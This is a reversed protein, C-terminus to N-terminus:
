ININNGMDVVSFESSSSSSSNKVVTESQGTTDCLVVKRGSQASQTALLRAADSASPRGGSNFVYVIKKNSLRVAAEGLVMIKHKSVFSIIDSIPKRSLRRISKSRLALDASADFVMASRTNYVGRRKSNILAM